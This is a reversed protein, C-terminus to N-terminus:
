LGRADAIRTAREPAINAAVAAIRGGAIAVDLIADRGNKPDIVHGGRILLDYERDQAFAPLAGGVVLAMLVLLARPPVRM